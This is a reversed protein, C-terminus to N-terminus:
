KGWTVAMWLDEMATDDFAVKLGPHKADSIAAPLSGKPLSGSLLSGMSPNAALTAVPAGNQSLTVSPKPSSLEALFQIGKVPNSGVIGQAWFPYLDATMAIALESTSLFKAWESPFDHRISFLCISGITAHNDIQTILNKVASAKLLDGGERATYRVHLVVDTITDFDFQKVDSPLTIQWLSGAVGAGEFPLYRQDNLNTEFLGSDSQASSTVIAQLTGYYDNFRSDDSGQRAYANKPDTSIRISSKQLSLTCSVSTYPGAVCPITVAVSKARRFYHGPGDMDFMEELMTFSCTGTARLQLLALPDVQRLSVHKTLEYERQNLDHYSMEMNKVDYLLKEGAYLGENGDLYNFQIYTLASDGLENQLAREAKKAIEFALQFAKAYLAKVDRKMFTYFGITTEKTPFGSGVDNGQLFDVIKQANAMQVQHNDYEKKAIAERLQAGRLQKFTQNIESKASNSQLTWDLERRDYSGLKAAKNAEYSYEGAIARSVAALGSAM